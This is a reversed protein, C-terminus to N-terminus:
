LDKLFEQSIIDIFNKECVLDNFTKSIGYNQPTFDFM